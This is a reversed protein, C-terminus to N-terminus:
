PVPSDPFVRDWLIEVMYIKADYEDDAPYVLYSENDLLEVWSVSSDSFLGVLESEIERRQFDDKLIRDLIAIESNRELGVDVSFISQLLNIISLYKKM